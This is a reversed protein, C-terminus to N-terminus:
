RGALRAQVRALYGRAAGSVRRRELLLELRLRQLTLQERLAGKEVEDTCAALLDEMRLLSRRLELEPPLMGADRLIKYPM